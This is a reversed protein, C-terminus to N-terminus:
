EPQGREGAAEFGCWAILKAIVPHPDAYDPAGGTPFGHGELDALARRLIGDLEHVAGMRLYTFFADRVDSTVACCQLVDTDDGTLRLSCWEEASLPGILDGM